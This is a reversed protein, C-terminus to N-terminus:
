PTAATCPDLRTLRFTPNRGGATTGDLDDFEAFPTGGNRLLGLKGGAFDFDLPPEKCNAAVCHAYTDLAPPITIGEIGPTFMLPKADAGILSCGLGSAKLFHVAWGYVAPDGITYCGDVYTLRYRGAPLPAGGAFYSPTDLLLVTLDEPL